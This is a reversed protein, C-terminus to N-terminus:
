RPGGVYITSPDIVRTGGTEDGDTELSLWLTGHEAGFVIAEAQAATVAFTIM